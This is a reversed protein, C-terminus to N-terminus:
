GKLQYLLKSILAMFTIERAKPIVSSSQYASEAIDVIVMSEKGKAFEDVKSYIFSYYDGYDLVGADAFMQRLNNFSDKTPFKLNELLKSKLNNEVLNDKVITLEGGISCQQAFQIVSRMDPHFQNVIFAVDEPKFNISESKLITALRVMEDRKSNPAIEFKQCRSQIADVIKYVYNCTLIFRCYGSFTEMLSRLMGQSNFSLFDAEDLIIVKFANFGVSSAFGKVKDRMVEIKTEDSANIYLSDCPISKVILKALSTKGTGAPGHLLIHNTLEGRSIYNRVNTLVSDNGIFDDLTKPRYKEVWISIESRPRDVGVFGSFDSEM